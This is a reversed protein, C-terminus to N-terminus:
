KFDHEKTTTHTSDLPKGCAPCNGSTNIGGKQERLKNMFASSILGTIIAIMSIGLLSIFAGLIKGMGTVPYIDGYGVTAFTAFAWWLGEGIDTFKEPQAERELYYMLIAAFCLVITATMFTTLLEKYVSHVVDGMMKFSQTYRVLKFIILIHSLNILNATQSHIFFLLLIFPLTATFDIIGFFSTIYKLRAKLWTTQPHLCPASVIRLIYEATFVLSSLFSIAFLTVRYNAMEKFSQLIVSSICCFVIFRISNVVVPSQLMKLIWGYGKYRLKQNKHM